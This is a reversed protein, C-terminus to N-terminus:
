DDPVQCTYARIFVSHVGVNGNAGEAVDLWRRVNAVAPDDDPANGNVDETSLM